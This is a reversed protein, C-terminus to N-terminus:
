LKWSKIIINDANVDVNIEFQNLEYSMGPSGTTVFDPAKEVALANSSPICAILARVLSFVLGITANGRPSGDPIPGSIM